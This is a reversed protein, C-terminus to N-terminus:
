NKSHIPTYITLLSTNTVLPYCLSETIGMYTDLIRLYFHIGSIQTEQYITTTM